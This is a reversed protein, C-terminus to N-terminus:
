FGGFTVFSYISSAAAFGANSAIQLDGSGLLSVSNVTKISTGSVLTDQKGSIDQDGSNTGTLGLDTKLTALTQVEPAGTAATKRYFVSATAVDAMKALTVASAAITLATSGTVDGTHTANTVLGSYLSNASNDGTNSGAATGGGTAVDADSIATNLQAVTFSGLVAANGVSTVHGTLNANTTVTGATLGAATGTVNTMVGSAPTGLIPTTLTPSTLTKQTLTQAGSTLVLTGSADPVTMTRTNGSTIGSAEFAIIKTSDVQDYITFSADEFDSGVSVGTGTSSGFKEAELFNALGLTSTGQQTIIFGRLLGNALISPETVFLNASLGALADAYANYINQGPQIKVDGSLFVYVRQITWKNVPVSAFTGANDYLNPDIILEGQSTAVRNVGTLSRYQFGLNSQAGVSLVNPNTNSNAWNSGMAFITGASKNIYLGSTTGVGFVNGSINFFGIASALDHLQSVPAIAVLQSQNVANVTSGNVHVIVGLHICSRIKAASPKTSEQLVNGGADICVYTILQTGINTVAINTKGAWSVATDTPIGPVTTHDLIVGKGDSISFTNNPTGISLVGGSILGTSRNTFGVIEVWDGNEYLSVKNTTSDLYMMGASPTPAAETAIVPHALVPATGFVLAGSGTEDSVVGALQASTTAAFQSLPSATLAKANLVTQLDTQNSLTGGIGGWSQDGTNTGSTGALTTFQVATLRLEAKDDTAWAAGISGEQAREITLVDGSRATVKVIEWSTESTAQTLTLAFWDGGTPSPFLVGHGTALTLSTAVNTIGSALTSAANNTFLQM